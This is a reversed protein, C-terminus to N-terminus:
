PEDWRFRAVALSAFGVTFLALRGANPLVQAFSGGPSLALDFGDVAWRTPIFATLMRLWGPFGTAPMWAGGLMVMILVALVSLSRAAQPTKGLAAILLGLSSTTTAYTISILILGAM